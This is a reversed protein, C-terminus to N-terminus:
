IRAPRAAQLAARIDDVLADDPIEVDDAEPLSLMKAKTMGDLSPYQKDYAALQDSAAAIAEPSVAGAPDETEGADALHLSRLRLNIPIGNGDVAFGQENVQPPNWDDPEGAQSGDASSGPALLNGPIEAPQTAAAEVTADASDAQNSDDAM